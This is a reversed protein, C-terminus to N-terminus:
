GCSCGPAHRLAYGGAIVIGCGIPALPHADFIYALRRKPQDPAQWAQPPIL